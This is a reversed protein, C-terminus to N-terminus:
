FRFKILSIMTNSKYSNEGVAIVYNENDSVIDYAAQIGTSGTILVDGEVLNGEANIVFMLMKSLSGSGVKGALVFSNTKYRNMANVSWSDSQDIKRIFLPSSYINQSIKSIFVSQHVNETGITGTVLYGDNLVELDSAYEDDTGGIIAPETASGDTNIRLLFINNNAQGPDSKDTTGAIIYGGGLDHKIAVGADNGPYGLPPLAAIQNLNNNIRMLLIDKKGKINGTAEIYGEVDTTGLIMFGEQTQLIDYGTQNGDAEFIHQVAGSGDSNLKAVFIDNELTIADIMYGTCVVSGDNLVIVKRGAGQLRGGFNKKWVVNGNFDTKIIGPRSSDGVIGEVESRAIINMQGCILYGDNTTAISYGIDEKVDGYFKLFTNDDRDKECATLTILFLMTIIGPKM